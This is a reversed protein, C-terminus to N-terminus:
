ICRGQDSVQTQVCMRHHSACLTHRYLWGVTKYPSYAYAHERGMSVGGDWGRAAAAAAAAAAASSSASPLLFSRLPVWARELRASPPRRSQLPFPLLCWMTVDCPSMLM